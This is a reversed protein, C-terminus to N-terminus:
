AVDVSRRRLATQPRWKFGHVFKEGFWRLAFPDSYVMQGDPDKYYDDGVVFIRDAYKDISFSPFQSRIKQAFRNREKNKLKMGMIAGQVVPPAEYYGVLIIKLMPQYKLAEILNWWISFDSAGYSLGFLIVVDSQKIRELSSTLENIGLEGDLNSKQLYGHEQSEEQLPADGIQESDDVGFVINGSSLAGHIHRVTGINITPGPQPQLNLSAGAGDQGLLKELTATYNIFELNIIRSKGIKPLVVELLCFLQNVFQRSVDGQESTPIILRADEDQLYNRLAAVFDGECEALAGVAGEAHGYESFPLNAFATEADAWLSGSNKRQLDIDERMKRIADTAIPFSSQLYRDLFDSYRTSLGLGLDFGNGVLVTVEFRGLAQRFALEGVNRIIEERTIEDM